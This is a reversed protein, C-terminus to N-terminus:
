SSAVDKSHLESKKSHKGTQPFITEWPIPKAPGAGLAANLSFASNSVMKEKQAHNERHALSSVTNVKLLCSLQNKPEPHCQDQNLSLGQATWPPGLAFM